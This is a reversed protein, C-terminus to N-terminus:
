EGCSSAPSLRSASCCASQRSRQSSALASCAARGATYRPRRSASYRSVVSKRQGRQPRIPLRFLACSRKAQLQPSAQAVIGAGYCVMDLAFPLALYARARPDARSLVVRNEGSLFDEPRCNCDLASQELAIQLIERNTM